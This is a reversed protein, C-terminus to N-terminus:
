SEEGSAESFVTEKGLDNVRQVIKQQKQKTSKNIELNLQKRLSYAQLCLTLRRRMSEKVNWINARVYSILYM